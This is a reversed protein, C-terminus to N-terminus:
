VFVDCVINCLGGVECAVDCTWVCWALVWVMHMHMYCM